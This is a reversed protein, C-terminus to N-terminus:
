HLNLEMKWNKKRPAAPFLGVFWFSSLQMGINAGFFLGFCHLAFDSSSTKGESDWTTELLSLFSVFANAFHVHFIIFFSLFRSDHSSTRPRFKQLSSTSPFLHSLSRLPASFNWKISCVHKIRKLKSSESKENAKKRQLKLFRLHLFRLSGRLINAEEEPTPARSTVQWSFSNRSPMSVEPAIASRDTMHVISPFRKENWKWARSPFQM